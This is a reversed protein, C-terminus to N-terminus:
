KLMEMTRKFWENVTPTAAQWSHGARAKAMIDEQKEPPVKALISEVSGLDKGSAGQGLLYEAIKDWNDSLLQAKKGNADRAYLGEDPSWLMNQSSALANMVLQKNVGKYPSGQPIDHRHFQAVKAANPVVKLDVQYFKGGLPIKTHVTVGAQYTEIGQKKLYDNLAKRTTKGDTTQFVHQLIAMDLMADLDNSPVINGQKDFRPKWCSGVTNVRVGLQDLYKQTTATLPKGVVSPDFNTEVDQWINGGEVLYYM